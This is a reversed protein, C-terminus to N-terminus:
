KKNFKGGLIRNNRRIVKEMEEVTMNKNGQGFDYGLYPKKPYKKPNNSAYAIYKGLLHNLMDQEKLDELKKDQYVKIYKYFTKPYM